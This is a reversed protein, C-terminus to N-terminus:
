ILYQWPTKLCNIGVVIGYDNLFVLSLPVKEKRFSPNFDWTVFGKFFLILRQPHSPPFAHNVSVTALTFLTELM